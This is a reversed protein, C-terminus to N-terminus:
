DTGGLGGITDGIDDICDPVTVGFLSLVKTAADIGIGLLDAIAYVDDISLEKDTLEKIASVIRAKYAVYLGVLLIVANIGLTVWYYWEMTIM